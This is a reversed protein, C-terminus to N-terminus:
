EVNLVQERISELETKSAIVAKSIPLKNSKSGITNLERGMEQVIFELKRGISGDTEVTELFQSYHSDLRTLEENIDCRDSFISIEKLVRDDDLDIELGISRLKEFLRDRYDSVMDKAEERIVSLQDKMTQIRALFDNKLALGETSRMESLAEAAEVISKQLVDQCSEWEPLDQSTKQATALKLLFDENPHFPINNEKALKEFRKLNELVSEESWDFGGATLSNKVRISVAIRGRLVIDKLSNTIFPDLGLWEKPASCVIDLTKRNVATIEITGQLNDAQFASRGFGTMSKM